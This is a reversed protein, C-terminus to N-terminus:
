VTGAPYENKNQERIYINLFFFFFVGSGFFVLFIYVSEQWGFYFFELLTQVLQKQLVFKLSLSHWAMSIVSKTNRKLDHKVRGCKTGEM